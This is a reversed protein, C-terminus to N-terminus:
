SALKLRSSFAVGPRGGTGQSRPLAPRGGGRHFRPDEVGARHGSAEQEVATVASGWALLM